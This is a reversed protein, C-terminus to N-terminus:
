NSNQPAEFLEQVRNELLFVEFDRRHCDPKAPYGDDVYFYLHLRGEPRQQAAKEFEAHRFIWAKDSELDVVGVPQAPSDARLWWDVARAGKGGAPKPQLCTKVQVTLAQEHGPAYVVLDIGDDTTM